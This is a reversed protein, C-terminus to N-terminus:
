PQRRLSGSAVYYLRLTGVREKPQLYEFWPKLNPYRYDLGYQRVKALTPSVATWGEAPELPNVKRTVPLEPWLSQNDGFWGFGVERVGLERLRKALRKQDQGWDYDSDVLIDEPHSGGFENFYPIYDPHHAAGSAVLWMVLGAAVGTVWRKTVGWEVLWVLGVAGLISFSLYVPLIHRLGINVHSTMAPLLIGLGFALPTLRVWADRRRWCAAVGLVVLVLLAVPTKVALAVPFFYWWGRTGVQGLLYAPNGVRNHHMASAIGDFFEPAPLTVNWAPVRGFSFFYAAWVLVAGALVALGFSPARERALSALRKMGPREVAVYAMLALLAAAPLYGLSTFKALAALASTLGLVLARKWSPTGAWRLLAVFAAGLCATLPMDTTAFTAHALVPPILTFLGAAIVATAGGFDRKTWGYVVLGALLFFPLIGLRMLRLFRDPHGSGYILAVGEQDQNPIGLPRAGDLFPGLASMARALPPHQSEYRYVHQALYQLGCAMHGPEDGTNGFVPYTAVIRVAALAILCAALLLSRRELFV